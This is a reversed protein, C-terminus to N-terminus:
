RAARAEEELVLEGAQELAVLREERVELGTTCASAVAIGSGRALRGSAALALAAQACVRLAEASGARM